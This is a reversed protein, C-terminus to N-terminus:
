VACLFSCLGPKELNYSGHQAVCLGGRDGLPHAARRLQLLTRIEQQHHVVKTELAVLDGKTGPTGKKELDEKTAVEKTVM